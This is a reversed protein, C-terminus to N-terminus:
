RVTNVFTRAGVKVAERMARVVQAFGLGPGRLLFLILISSTGWVPHAMVWIFPIDVFSERDIGKTFLGLIMFPSALAGFFAMPFLLPQLAFFWRVTRVGLRASYFLLTGGLAHMALALWEYAHESRFLANADFNRIMIIYHEITLPDNFGMPRGQSDTTDYSTAGIGIRLVIALLLVMASLLVLWALRRNFSADDKTKM